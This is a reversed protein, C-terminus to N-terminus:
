NTSGSFLIMQPQSCPYTCLKDRNSANTNVKAIQTICSCILNNTTTDSLSGLYISTNESKNANKCVLSKMNISRLELGKTSINNNIKRYHEAAYLDIKSIGFQKKKRRNKNYKKFHWLVFDLM